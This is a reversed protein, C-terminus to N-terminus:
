EGDEKTHGSADHDTTNGTIRHLRRRFSALAPAWMRRVDDDPM